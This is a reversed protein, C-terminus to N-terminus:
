RKKGYTDVKEYSLDSFYSVSNNVVYLLICTTSHLYSTTCIYIYICIIFKYKDRKLNGSWIKSTNFSVTM